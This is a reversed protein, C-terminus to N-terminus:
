RLTSFYFVDKLVRSAILLSKVDLFLMLYYTLEIPLISLFDRRSFLELKEKTQGSSVNWFNYLVDLQQSENLDRFVASVTKLWQKYEFM